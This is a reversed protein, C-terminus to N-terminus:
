REDFGTKLMSVISGSAALEPMVAAGLEYTQPV